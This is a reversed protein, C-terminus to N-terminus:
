QAAADGGIGLRGPEVGAQLAHDRAGPGHLEHDGVALGLGEQELVVQDLAELRAEVHQQAVVLREGVDHDAAVGLPRLEGLVAAHALLAVLIEAGEGRSGRDVPREVGQLAGERQAGAGVAHERRAGSGAQLVLDLAARRGTDPADIRHFIAADDVLHAAEQAAAVALDLLRQRLAHVPGGVIEFEFPGRHQAVANARQGMDLRVLRDAQGRDVLGVDEGDVLFAALEADLHDEQAGPLIETIASIERRVGLIDVGRGHERGEDALEVLRALRGLQDQGAVVDGLALQQFARQGEDGLVLDLDALGLAAVLLVREVLGDDVGALGEGAAHGLAAGLALQEFAHRPHEPQVPRGLADLDVVVAM